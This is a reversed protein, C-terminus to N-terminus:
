WGVAAIVQWGLARAAAADVGVERPAASLIAVHERPQPPQAPLPAAVHLAGAFSRRPSPRVGLQM